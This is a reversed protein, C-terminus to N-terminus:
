NSNLGFARTGLKRKYLSEYQIVEAKTLTSPLTRLLTFRFQKAAEPEAALRAQLQANGGHGNAAYTVWRGLVGAAGYASGVYQKGTAMDAILYVGAVAALMRHWERNAEPHLVISVLEDFTLVFDLYGPFERVYGKPLVQIVEKDTLWQHWALAGAGWDIVVRDTLAEFGHVLELVYYFGHANVLEPRPFPAPIPAEAATLEGRVRYVGVFRARNQEMGTFSVIYDCRFIPRSQFSQYVDFYGERRLAEVDFRQDQHRVLKVRANTDLGRLKLLEVISLVPSSSASVAQIVIGGFRAGEAECRLGNIFCESSPYEEGTDAYQGACGEGSPTVNFFKLPRSDVSTVKAACVECVYRPYRPNPEVAM